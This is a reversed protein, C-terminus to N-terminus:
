RSPDHKAYDHALIDARVDAPAVRDLGTGADAARAAAVGIAEGTALATGIVRLAGLAEHSASLCRGAMGLRPDSRSVLADLPVGCPRKPYELRARRHDQWLEIPWSSQTVDADCRRGDLVDDHSIEVRGVGRRAERIGLREPWGDIRSSAFAPRSRTLFEWIQTAWERASAELECRHDDDLPDYRSPRPVNLTVYVDTEGAGPRVLVSECGAPLEGGRVAGAISHTVRLRAFGELGGRDVGDLRFIFSPLQLEDPSAAHVAAGGRAIADADGSADILISTEVESTAEGGLGPELGRALAIRPREGAGKALRVGVVARGLAVRLGPRDCRALLAGAYRRPEIPLVFVRGAREPKRAVGDRRLQGALWQPLRDHLFVAEGEDAARFLGCITHVWAHRVNGGLGDGREVLLTKAGRDAAAIGAAVGASGGGVIIVDFREAGSL